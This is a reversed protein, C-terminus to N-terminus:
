PENEGPSQLSRRRDGRELQTKVGPVRFKVRLKRFSVANGTGKPSSHVSSLVVQADFRKM